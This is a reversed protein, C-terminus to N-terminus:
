GARRARLSAAADVLREEGCIVTSGIVVAPLRDGGAALLRRGASELAEDWAHDRAARLAADLGLGAAAVAEALVEPDELDFGGCFALRSAAVAFAAGRGVEVAHAAIRMASRVDSGPPLALPMHLERARAAADEFASGRGSSGRHLAESIAPTWRVGPLMREVRDIALYSFPCGLDFFFTARPTRGTPRACGQRRARFSALEVVQGM